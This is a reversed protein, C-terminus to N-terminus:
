KKAEKEPAFIAALSAILVGMSQADTGKSAIVGAVSSAIGAIGAYTSPESLRRIFFSM